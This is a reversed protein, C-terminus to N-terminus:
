SAHWPRDYSDEVTLPDCRRLHCHPNGAMTAGIPLTTWPFHTSATGPSVQGGNPPTFGHCGESAEWTHLGRQHEPIIRLVPPTRHLSGVRPPAATVHLSPYVRCAHTHGNQIPSSRLTAHRCGTGEMASDLLVSRLM